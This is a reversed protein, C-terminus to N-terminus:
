SREQWKMYKGRLREAKIISYLEGVAKDLDDNVLWYDYEWRYELDRMILKKRKEFQEPTEAGRQELRELLEDVSPPLVFVTVVRGRFNREIQRKGQVDIDMIVDKGKRFNEIVPDLPTGYYNDYVKAWELLKGKEIWEEFQEVSLFYYDKGHVEGERRPRTTASVSYFLNGDLQMVRKCLTTKGVGSPGSVIIVFPQHM